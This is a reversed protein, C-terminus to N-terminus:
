RFPYQWAGREAGGSPRPVAPTRRLLPLATVSLPCTMLILTGIGFGGLLGSAMGQQNFGTTAWLRRDGFRVMIWFALVASVASIGEGLTMVLVPHTHPRHHLLRLLGNFAGGTVLAIAIFVILYLVIRTMPFALFRQRRGPKTPSSLPTLKCIPPHVIKWAANSVLARFLQL